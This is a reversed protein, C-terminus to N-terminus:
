LIELYHNEYCPKCTKFAAKKASKGLTMLYLSVYRVRKGNIFDIIYGGNKKMFDICGSM